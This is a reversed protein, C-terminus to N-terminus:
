HRRLDLFRNPYISRVVDKPRVLSQDLDLDEPLREVDRFLVGNEAAKLVNARFGNRVPPKAQILIALTAAYNAFQHVIVLGAFQQAAFKQDACAHFDCLDAGFKFVAESILKVLLNPRNNWYTRRKYNRASV